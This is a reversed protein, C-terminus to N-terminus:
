VANTVLLGCIIERDAEATFNEYKISRSGILPLRKPRKYGSETRESRNFIGNALSPHIYEAIRDRVNHQEFRSTCQKGIRVNRERPAGDLRTAGSM